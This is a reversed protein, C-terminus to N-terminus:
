GDVRETTGIRVTVRGTARVWVTVARNDKVIVTVSISVRGIARAGMTVRMGVRGTTRVMVTVNVKDKVNVTVNM